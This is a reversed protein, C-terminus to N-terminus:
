KQTEGNEPAPHNEDPDKKPLSHCAGAMACHACNNGCSSRGQKKDKIMSRIILVVILTLVAIILITGINAGLWDLM